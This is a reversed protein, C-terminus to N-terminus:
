NCLHVSDVYATQTCVTYKYQVADCLVDGNTHHMAHVAQTLSSGRWVVQVLWAVVLVAGNSSQPPTRVAWFPLVASRPYRVASSIGESQWLFGILWLTEVDDVLLGCTSQEGLRGGEWGGLCPLLARPICLRVTDTIRLELEVVTTSCRQRLGVLSLTASIDRAIAHKRHRLGCPTDMVLLEEQGRAPM